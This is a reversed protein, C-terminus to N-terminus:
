SDVASIDIADCGIGCKCNCCELKCFRQCGGHNTISRRKALLITGNGADKGCGGGNGWAVRAPSKLFGDWTSDLDGVAGWTTM